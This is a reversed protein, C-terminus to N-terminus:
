AKISGNGQDCSEKYEQEAKEAIIKAFTWMMTMQESAHTPDSANLRRTTKMAGCVSAITGEGVHKEQGKKRRSHEEMKIKWIPQIKSDSIPAFSQPITSMNIENQKECSGYYADPDTISLGASAIPIRPPYIRPVSKMYKSLRDALEATIARWVEVAATRLSPYCNGSHLTRGSETKFYLIASPDSREGNTITM